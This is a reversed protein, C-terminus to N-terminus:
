TDSGHVFYNNYIHRGVYLTIPLFVLGSVIAMILSPEKINSDLTMEIGSFYLISVQTANNFMHILIPYILNSTVYYAFGMIAGIIIKPLLGTVEFHFLGFIVAAIIIAYKPDVYNYLEKQIVGRFLLEEGVGAFVAIITLNIIFDIPSNMSLLQELAGINQEDMSNAWEPLPLHQISIIIASFIPYSLVLLAIFKLFLVANFKLNIGTYEKVQGKSFLYILLMGSFVFSVLHNLGFALKLKDTQGATFEADGLNKISELDIGASELVLMMLGSGLLIFLGMVVIITSIKQWLNM